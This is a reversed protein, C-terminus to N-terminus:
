LQQPTACVAKRTWLVKRVQKILKGNFRWNVGSSHPPNNQGLDRWGQSYPLNLCKRLVKHTNHQFSISLISSWNFCRDVAPCSNNILTRINITSRSTKLPSSISRSLLYMSRCFMNSFCALVSLSYSLSYSALRTIGYLETSYRVLATTPQFFQIRINPWPLIRINLYM